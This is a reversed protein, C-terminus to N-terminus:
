GLFRSICFDGNYPCHSFMLPFDCFFHSLRFPPITNWDIRKSDFSHPEKRSSGLLLWPFLIGVRLCANTVLRPGLYLFFLFRLYHKEVVLILNTNIAEILHCAQVGCSRSRSPPRQTNPSIHQIYSCYVSTYLNGRDGLLYKCYLTDVSVM